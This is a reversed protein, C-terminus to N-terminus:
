LEYISKPNLNAAKGSVSVVAVSCLLYRGFNVILSFEFEDSFLLSVGICRFFILASIVDQAKGRMDRRSGM